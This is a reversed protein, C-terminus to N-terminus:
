VYRSPSHVAPARAPQAARFRHAARMPYASAQPTLPAKESEPQKSKGTEDLAPKKWRGNIEV